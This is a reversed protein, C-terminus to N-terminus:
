REGRGDNSHFAPHFRIPGSPLRGGLAKIMFFEAPEDAPAHSPSVVFGFRRYYDPNGTLICGAANMAGIAQLGREILQSGIGGLQYEPLVAVPGLAYWLASGDAPYAPSFAIQGIVVGRLEAVLSVVLAGARRLEDVLEAEDGAAYPRGRFAARIVDGISAHDESREARVLVNTV